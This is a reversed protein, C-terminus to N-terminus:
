EGGAVRDCTGLSACYFFPQGRVSWGSRRSTGLQVKAGASRGGAECDLRHPVPETEFRREHFYVEQRYSVGGGFVRWNRILRQRTAWGESPLVCLPHGM